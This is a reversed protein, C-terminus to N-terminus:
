LRKLIGSFIVKQYKKCKEFDMASVYYSEIRDHVKKAEYLTECAATLLEDSARKNFKLRESYERFEATNKFRRAHIKRQSQSEIKLKPGTTCFAISKEPIIIHDIKRMPHIACPCVYITCGAELARKRLVTMIVSSAGGYADEVTIVKQCLKLPTDSFATHGEPTIGSLFRRKECGDKGRGKGFIRDALKKAFEAARDLDTCRCDVAFSDDLLRGAAKILRSAKKHLLSNANFLPLLEQRKEYLADSNLCEGLPVINECLGPFKPDMTHPATGDAIGTGTKEFTVGDLSEPDSSCYFLTPAEGKESMKVATEKMLTSKGTGPGGKLIYFRDGSFPDYLDDFCSFFGDASNAGAFFEPASKRLTEFNELM